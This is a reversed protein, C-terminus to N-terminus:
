PTISNLLKILHKLKDRSSLPPQLDEKFEKIDSRKMSDNWVRAGQVKVVQM